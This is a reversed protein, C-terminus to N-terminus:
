LAQFIQSTTVENGSGPPGVSYRSGRVDSIRHLGLRDAISRLSVAHYVNPYIVALARTEIPRGEFQGEGHYANYAVDGQVIAVQSQGAAIQRLNQASAGTAEAVAEVGPVDRNWIE